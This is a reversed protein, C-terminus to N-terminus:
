ISEGHVITVVSLDLGEVNKSDIYRAVSKCLKEESLLALLLFFQELEWVVSHVLEFLVRSSFFFSPSSFARSNFSLLM